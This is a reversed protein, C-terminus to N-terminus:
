KGRITCYILRWVELKSPITLLAKVAYRRAIDVRNKSLANWGWRMLDDGKKKTVVDDELWHRFDNPMTLNRAEWETKLKIICNEVMSQNAQAVISTPHLRYYLLLEDLNHLKGVRAVKLFFGVDDGLRHNPNYGGVEQAVARRIMSASQHFSNGIDHLLKLEIDKHESPINGKFLPVGYMCTYEYGGSVAAVSSNNKLYNYSIELRRPTSIDDADMFAIFESSAIEIGKNRTLSRGLNEQQIAKIRKDKRQWQSIKNFSNDSSGDDIIIFEYDTFTQNLISEIAEDIYSEANYVPMIVSIKHQQATNTM